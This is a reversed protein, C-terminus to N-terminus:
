GVKRLYTDLIISASVEDIIKKRKRRSVDAKILINEAEMTSLREDVLHVELSCASELRKKFDLSREAAPGLTNNMNKPLGLVLTGVEKESIVELVEKILDDYTEYKILKYPSSIIGEKDSLALGLTKSGLDMGLYRM